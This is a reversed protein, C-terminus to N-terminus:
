TAGSTNLSFVRKVCSEVINFIIPARPGGKSTRSVWSCSHFPSFTRGDVSDLEHRCFNLAESDFSTVESFGSHTNSKRRQRSNEASHADKSFKIRSMSIGRGSNCLEPIPTRHDFRHKSLASALIRKALSEEVCFETFSGQCDTSFVTRHHIWLYRRM